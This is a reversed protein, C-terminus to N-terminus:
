NARTLLEDWRRAIMEALAPTEYPGFEVGTDEVRVYFGKTFNGHVTRVRSPQTVDFTFAGRIDM